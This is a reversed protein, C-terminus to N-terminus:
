KPTHYEIINREGEQNIRLDIKDSFVFKFVHEKLTYAGIARHLLAGSLPQYTFDVTATQLGWGEERSIDYASRNKHQNPLHGARANASYWLDIRPVYPIVDVMEGCAAKFIREKHTM